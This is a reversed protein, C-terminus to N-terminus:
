DGIGTIVAAWKKAEDMLSTEAPASYSLGKAAQERVATVVSPNAHGVVYTTANLMFDLYRNGDVDYVHHRDAHDVFFPYPEFYATGRSSGGPLYEEAERQLDQSGPTSAIYLDVESRSDHSM